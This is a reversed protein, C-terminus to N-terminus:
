NGGAASVLDVLWALGVMAVTLVPFLLLTIWSTGSRGALAQEGPGVIPDDLDRTSRSRWELATGVALAVVGVAVTLIASVETLPTPFLLLAGVMLGLHVLFLGFASVPRRVTFRLLAESAVMLGLFAVAVLGTMVLGGVTVEVSEGRLWANFGSLTLLMGFLGLAAGLFFSGDLDEVREAPASERAYATPDGFSERASEGSEAVHSEVVALADGIRTGPVGALRQELVFDEVWDQEVTPALRRYDDLSPAPAAGRKDDHRMADEKTTSM